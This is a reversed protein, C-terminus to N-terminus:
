KGGAAQRRGKTSVAAQIPCVAELALNQEPTFETHRSTHFDDVPVIGQKVELADACAFETFLEQLRDLLEQTRDAPLKDGSIKLEFAQRFLAGTRDGLIPLLAADDALTKYAKKFMVLVEGTEVMPADPPRHTDRELAKISISSPVEHKGRNTQFYFPAVMLKLEAKDTELAGKLAEFDETRTRIRQAIEGALGHPDPFVPYATKTEEKKTAIKGFSIKKVGQAPLAVAPELTASSTDPPVGSRAPAVGASRTPVIVPALSPAPEETPCPRTAQFRRTGPMAIATNMFHFNQM